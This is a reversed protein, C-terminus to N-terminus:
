RVVLLNQIQLIDQCGALFNLQIKDGVTRNRNYSGTHSNILKIDKGNNYNNHFIYIKVTGIM